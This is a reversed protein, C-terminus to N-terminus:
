KQNQEEIREALDTLYVWRETKEELAAETEEKQVMLEALKASNTANKMMQDDISAIKEELAAIDDDITEYERQEKFTFKLRIPRNQKWDNNKEKGSAADTATGTDKKGTGVASVATKAMATQAAKEPLKGFRREKAELYDTYGGEYQLLNGNGDFEFIRDVVNDLFYRDHSVTIVIGVFTNLFDELVTLTPIDVNNSPEDLILVNAGSVLVSLLYLRRKEGGSLKSIPTYQMDPTFLFRELMQSASIRGDRTQVYEAIDKVYDIVRQNTDMDPEEQALYGIRITDGIEITGADPLVEGTIMRLMTSKGCGNPGIIGVSQNRLFIYEFNKMLTKDGFAKSVSHFEITKKGMRTEVADMEM